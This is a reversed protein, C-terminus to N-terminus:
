VKKCFTYMFGSAPVAGRRFVFNMMPLNHLYTKGMVLESGTLVQMHSWHVLHTGLRHRRESRAVGIMVLFSIKRGTAQELPLDRRYCAFGAVTRNKVAVFVDDANLGRCCNKISEPYYREQMDRRLHPTLSFKSEVDHAIEEAIALLQPYDAAKYKRFEYGAPSKERTYLGPLDCARIARVAEACVFDFGARSLANILQHRRCELSAYLIKIGKRRALDVCGKVLARATANNGAAGTESVISEISGIPIKFFRSDWKRRKLFCAGEIKSGNEALVFVGESVQGAAYQVYELPSIIASAVLFPEAAGSLRSIGRIEDRSLSKKIVIIM